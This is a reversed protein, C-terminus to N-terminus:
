ASHEEQKQKRQRDRMQQYLDKFGSWGRLIQYLLIAIYTPLGIGDLQFNGWKLTTQMSAGLVVPIGAVLLNRTDKFDVKNEVWIRAGSVTILSFLIISLGGFVGSPITHIAAGFKQIFGLLIAIVAAVLFILSSFVNTVAMVGINESYTTEGPGGAAASVITAVADGLLTRGIYKNLPTESMASIAKVHGLNEAVLVICVPVIVSIAQAEFVPKTFTPAAFWSAAYVESYDISPAAGTMGCGMAILYSIVMGVLLPIRKFIGPAYVSTLAIIMVTTFAMWGDFSTATASQFASTALHIGITMVVAGTVVPPLLIEVWGHGLLIVLIAIALYVLGCVLIGGAAVDIKPNTGSTPTYTYGTASAVVGIFGFSSGVYSPVRGGTIIYFIITGVGSFFLATNSSQGMMLPALVTSGFMSLVHQVGMLGCQFATPREDIYVIGQPKLTYRPFYNLLTSKSWFPPSATTVHEHLDKTFDEPQISTDFAHKEM